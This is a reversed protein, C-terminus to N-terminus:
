EDDAGELVVKALEIAAMYEREYKTGGHVEHVRKEFEELTGFFCGARVHMGQDSAFFYTKRRESGIRDAAFYRANTLDSEFSCGVGFSCREGFSCWEGFRCREGFRCWEGFGCWEGFRCGEGFSCREGFRCGEGFSCGVGFSCRSAFDCDNPFKAIRSYDGTPCQRRGNVIPLADFEEQTYIKLKTM